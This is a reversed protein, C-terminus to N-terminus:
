IQMGFITVDDTQPEKNKWTNFFHLIKSKHLYMPQRVLENLFQRWNKRKLRKGQEGGLQDFIGDTYVYLIDNTQINIKESNSAPSLVKFDSNTQSYFVAEVGTSYFTLFNEVPNIQIINIEFSPKISIEDDSFNLAKTSQFFNFYLYDSIEKPDSLTKIANNLYSLSLMSILAASVGHGTCDGIAIYYSNTQENKYTWIFDGSIIMKPYYILFHYPFQEIFNEPIQLLQKQINQAYNINERIDNFLESLEKYEFEIKHYSNLIEENKLKQIENLRKLKDTEYQIELYQITKFNTENIFQEKYDNYKKYCSLANKFDSQVEYIESLMQMSIAMGEKNEIKEANQFSLEAYMKCKDYNKLHLYYKSVFYYLETLLSYYGINEALAIAENFYKPCQDHQHTFFHLKGLNFYAWALSSPVAHSFQICKEFWIRANQYDQMEMYTEGINNMSSAIGDNDNIETRIKLCELNVELRKQHQKQFMYVAGLSNLADALGKKDNIKQYIEISRITHTLSKDYDSMRWYCYGINRESDAIGKEYNIKQSLQLLQNSINLCEKVNSIRLEWAKENRDNIDDNTINETVLENSYKVLVPNNKAYGM